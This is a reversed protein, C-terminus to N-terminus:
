KVVKMLKWPKPKPMGPPMNMAIMKIEAAIPDSNLKMIYRFVEQTGPDKVSILLGDPNLKADVLPYTVFEESVHKIEGNDNLDINKARQLSGSFQEGILNLNLLIWPKGEFAGIWNGAYPVQPNKKAPAQAAGQPSNPNQKPGTQAIAASLFLLLSFAVLARPM